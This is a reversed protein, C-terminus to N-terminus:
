MRKFYESKSPVDFSVAILHAQCTLDLKRLRKYGEIVHVIVLWASLIRSTNTFPGIKRWFREARSLAKPKILSFSSVITTRKPGSLPSSGTPSLRM